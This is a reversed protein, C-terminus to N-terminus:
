VSRWSTTHPFPHISGCKRSRTVLRLHTTLKVGRGSEGRPFLGRTGTPLLSPPGWPRDPRRPSSFRRSGGPVRDGVGRDDLGYASAIGVVCKHTRVCIIFLTRPSSQIHGLCKCRRTLQTRSWETGTFNMLRAAECVYHIVAFREDVIILLSSTLVM